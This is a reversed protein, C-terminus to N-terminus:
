EFEYQMDIINCHTSTHQLRLAWECWCQMDIAPERRVYILVHTCTHTDEPHKQTHCTHAHWGQEETKGNKRNEEEGSARTSVVFM